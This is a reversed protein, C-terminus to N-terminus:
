HEVGISLGDWATLLAHLREVRAYGITEMIDGYAGIAAKGGYDTVPQTIPAQLMAMGTGDLVKHSNEINRVAFMCTAGSDKLRRALPLMRSVHGLGDGLEWIFLIRNATM